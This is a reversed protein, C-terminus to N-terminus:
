QPNDDDVLLLLEDVRCDLVTCVRAITEKHYQKSDDHYLRRLTEFKLDTRRELERISINRDDLLQKLNSKIKM